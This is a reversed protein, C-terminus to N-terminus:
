ETVPPRTNAITYAIGFTGFTGDAFTDNVPAVRIRVLGTRTATFTRPTTWGSSTDAFIPTNDGYYARVVIHATKTSDGHSADNWWVHYTTGSTVDILYWWVHAQPTGWTISGAMWTDPPLPTSPFINNLIMNDFAPRISEATHALLNEIHLIMTNWTFQANLYYGADDEIIVTLGRGLVMQFMASRIGDTSMVAEQLVIMEEFKELIGEAEVRGGTRDELTFTMYNPNTAIGVQITLTHWPPEQVTIPFDRTYPTGIALGDTITVRLTLTGGETANLTNGSITAGTTGADHVSWTIAQNTANSPQVTATLALPTGAIATTPVGTIGTVPVFGANVTVAFDQTFATTANTGGAITARVTATGATTANLTNGSVTAGTTGPNQISWAIAQNTASSPQVTATLTLPTGATAVTPMGTIGTVPVFTDIVTSTTDNPCGTMSVAIAAALAIACLRINKTAFFGFANNM